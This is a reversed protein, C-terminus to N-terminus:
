HGVDAVRKVRRTVLWEAYTIGKYEPETIKVRKSRTCEEFDGCEACGLWRPCPGSGAYSVARNIRRWIDAETCGEWHVLWEMTVDGLFYGVALHGDSNCRSLRMEVDAWISAPKVFTGESALRRGGGMDIYGTDRPQPPWKGNRLTVAHDCAFQVHRRYFWFQSFSFWDPKDSM